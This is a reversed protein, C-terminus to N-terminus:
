RGHLYHTPMLDAVSGLFCNCSKFQNPLPPLRLSAVLWAHDVSLDNVVYGSFERGM